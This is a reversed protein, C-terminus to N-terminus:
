PPYVDWGAAGGTLILARECTFFDGTFVEAAPVVGQVLSPTYLDGQNNFVAAIGPAASYVTFIEFTFLLEDMTVKLPDAITFIAFANGFSFSEAVSQWVMPPQDNMHKNVCFWEHRNLIAGVQGSIGEVTLRYCEPFAWEHNLVGAYLDRRFQLKYHKGVHAM